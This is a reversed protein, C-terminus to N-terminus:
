TVPSMDEFPITPVMDEEKGMGPLLHVTQKAVHEVGHCAEKGVAWLLLAM